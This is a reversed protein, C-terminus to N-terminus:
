IKGWKDFVYFYNDILKKTTQLYIHLRCCGNTSIKEEVKLQWHLRNEFFVGNIQIKPM